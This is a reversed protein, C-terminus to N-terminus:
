LVHALIGSAWDIRERIAQATNARGTVLELNNALGVAFDSRLRDAHEVFADLQDLRRYIAVTVADYLPISVRQRKREEAPLRFPVGEFIEYCAEIIRSYTTEYHVVRNDSINEHSQMCNDLIRRMSGRISDDDLLAFFRLVIQCDGM